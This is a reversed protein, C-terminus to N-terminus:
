ARPLDERLLVFVQDVPWAFPTRPYARELRRRGRGVECVLLGRPELHAHAQRLIRRVLELGDGGGALAMRPEHRYERPLARMARADVYPPNSVILDYRRRGLASFLDSRLRRVRSRLRHRATNREAVALAAASLDVADVRARPFAKAALVALCGAGTCLDLARRVPRPSWPRLREQLLQAIHSRPVIVRRDVYFPEGGLWAEHLLYPVPVREGIRRKLLRRVRAVQRDAVPASAAAEFPLGLGRLVLFAAEDRANTTGHGYHLRASRLRQAVGRVLEALTM